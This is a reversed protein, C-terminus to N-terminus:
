SCQKALSQNEPNEAPSMAPCLFIELEKSADRAEERSWLGANAGQPSQGGINGGFHITITVLMCTGGDSRVGVKGGRIEAVHVGVGCEKRKKRM